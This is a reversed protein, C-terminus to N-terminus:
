DERTMARESAQMAVESVSAAPLSIRKRLVYRYRRAPPRDSSRARTSTNKRRMLGSDQRVNEAAVIVLEEVHVRARKLADRQLKTGSSGSAIGRVYARYCSRPGRTIRRRLPANPIPFVVTARASTARNDRATSKSGSIM